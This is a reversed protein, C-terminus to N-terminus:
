KIANKKGQQIYLGSKPTQVSLGQQDFMAGSRKESKVGDCKVEMIGDAVKDGLRYLKVGHSPITARDKWKWRAAKWTRIWM